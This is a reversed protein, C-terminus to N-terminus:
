LETQIRKIIDTTSFHQVLPINAVRGGAGIVEAAGVIKEVPWDAGKVLVDPLLAKILHLPTEEDFLVVHDVCALAALVRARSLEGTVPRQPGKIARVSRDSNLGVILCDGHRRAEELYTVHGQHLLDFCGNTFVVRRGIAKYRGVTKQLEALTAM